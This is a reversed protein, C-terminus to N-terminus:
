SATAQNPAVRLKADSGAKMYRPNSKLHLYKKAIDTFTGETAASFEREMAEVEDIGKNAWTMLEKGTEETIIFEHRGDFIGTRDKSATVLHKDNIFEFNLTLEYEFGDRTIEKTGVKEVKQKGRDDKSIEYEQKRRVTTIVHADCQLMKNVFSQHRPTVKAWSTFSGGLAQSIDLCGGEGAWEHTISDIIIVEIGANVCEDIAGIYAEPSFPPKLTLVQYGGLDEYLDASGNETDIVAVKEWDGTIGHALLLSSFTKGFGSPGSMGIKLKVKKKQVKRLRM